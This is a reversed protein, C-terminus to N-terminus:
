NHKAKEIETRLETIRQQYDEAAFLGSGIVFFDAGSQAAQHINHIKIGGDVGLLTSSGVHDIRKRALQIKDHSDDMFAQGGFGPNVSMLLLMDLTQLVEDSVEVEHEPNFALGTKMGCQRIKKLTSVVDTVTDPHFTILNAGSNAFQEIYQNPAEVMLHVDIPATIGANRLAQCIVPGFSLNPVYHHDMVDFHISDIGASLARKVDQGLNAFDAALISASLYYQKEM